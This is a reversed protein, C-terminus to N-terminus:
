AMRVIVTHVNHLVLVDNGFAIERCVIRVDYIRIEMANGAESRVKDNEVLVHVHELGGRVGIKEGACVLVGFAVNRDVAVVRAGRAMGDVSGARVEINLDKLVGNTAVLKVVGAELM